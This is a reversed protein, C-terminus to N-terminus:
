YIVLKENYSSGDAFTVHIAYSGKQLGSISTDSSLINSQKVVQGSLSTITLRAGELESPSVDISLRSSQGNIVPNPYLKIAKSATNVTLTNSIGDSGDTTTVKVYYNGAPLSESERYYQKTASAIINDNKYWQYTAFLNQSNDCILVNNWKKIISAIIYPQQTVTITKLLSSSVAVTVTATRPTTSLNTGATFTLTANGEGSLTNIALWSQDASATWAVNSTVTCTATSGNGAKIALSNGSLTLTAAEQTVTITKSLSSSVIITVTATRPTPLLNAYATFTLTANGDGSSTNVSLWSQDASATWAVNSTVTGSVTSGNGAKIALTNNSVSLTAAEQTVTITKSLGPSVVITVIAMRPTPLLNAYATFMLTANGDGSNTNLSLWSQDASATWAVNSTVTGSVTSGNGAKIALSNSSVTLTAAEQTVTITKSLGPSVVITVTAMRPTPSLNAEATLTLTANGDGSNTNLLLWSQDASATWTVNSTVTGSVTSGNGAKIALSNSSVSLTAAEQIVTITKSLSSSVVVTVTATRPTTTLNADATLTLTANGEGSLANLVLWPQDSTATWAVNSTVTGSVTSGYGAKIAPLNSSVTLTAAEQTVTITKSLGPSVVITVIAMRPTPSLNAYATFTLTANGDGSNTNLSLWSQDASATWTVNSTVTGSVTSGNGAKIALSNDSVILTAAEQTVTITKSLSPSVVITVTAMRPTPSLNAEATLTLTANGDGSNTNLLLWSQDASATWAVNSTVTGSVTSGYGAKIAPLNSSVTLTAAEQTVTITKSLGPSVAVTVTATRPTPLLNADATLTLTANGDGSLANLALWSQDSAITWASNSTITVTSIRKNITIGNSSVSLTPPGAAQTVTINQLLVDDYYVGVTATRPQITPNIGSTITLTADGAGSSPAVTIWSQNSKTTWPFYATMDVPSSGGTGSLSVKNNSLICDPLEEIVNTFANWKNANQYLSKSHTPVYLTCSSKSVGFFADAMSPDLSIINIPVLSKAHITSLNSCYSFVGYPLTTVSNPITLSTLNTCNNFACTGIYSVHNPLIMSTLSTCYEFAADRISDVSNPLSISTLKSWQFAVDSITKVTAPISYSTATNGIPYFILTTKDKNFLVGNVSSYNTNGAEVNIANLSLCQYFAFKGISTVSAPIAISTLLLCSHFAHNGITIVSNPLNISKSKCFAFANDRITIVSNPITIASLFDCQFFANEGIIKVTNPISYSSATNGDAYKVLITKDKNFLVGDISSYYLNNADVNIATLKGCSYFTNTAISSVSASISVSTLEDCLAFSMAGIQTVSNPININSLGSCRIFAQGGISTITNPLVISTIKTKEYFANEPITNAPYSYNYYGYTGEAGRYDLVSVRSLDLNALQPMQDRMTKFDRADITGVLALDTITVLESGSLISSLQGATVNITSTKSTAVSLKTEDATSNSAYLLHISLFLILTFTTRKM